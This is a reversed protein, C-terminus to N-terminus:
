LVAGANNVHVAIKTNSTAGAHNGTGISRAIHIRLNALDVLAIEAEATNLVSELGGTNGSARRMGLNKAVQFICGTFSELQDISPSGMSDFSRLDCDSWIDVVRAFRFM